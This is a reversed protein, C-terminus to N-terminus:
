IYKKNTHEQIIGFAFDNLDAVMEHAYENTLGFNQMTKIRNNIGGDMKYIGGDVIEYLKMDILRKLESDVELLNFNNKEEVNNESIIESIINKERDNLIARNYLTTNILEKFEEISIEELNNQVEKLYPISDRNHSNSILDQNYDLITKLIKKTEGESLNLIYENQNEIYRQFEYYKIIFLKKYQEYDSCYNKSKLIMMIKYLEIIQRCYEHTLNSKGLSYLITISRLQKM